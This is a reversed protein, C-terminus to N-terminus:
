PPRGQGTSVREPEGPLRTKAGKLEDTIKKLRRWKLSRGERRYIGKRRKILKRIRNNIWPCDTSKKWVTILPFFVEMAVTVAEQYLNAKMNSGQLQVVDAWDRGALWRGFNDVAEGNFYRYQYTVWEFTRNKPLQARLFAVRHDSTSGQHGPEPELPPM